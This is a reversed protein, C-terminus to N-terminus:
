SLARMMEKELAKMGGEGKPSDELRPLPGPHPHKLSTAPNVFIRFVDSPNAVSFVSFAEIVLLWHGFM